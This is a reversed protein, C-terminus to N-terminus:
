GGDARAGADPKVCVDPVCAIGRTDQVCHVGAGCAEGPTTCPKTCFIADPPANVDATCVTNPCDTTTKCSGGVGQDNNPTGPPVCNVPPSAGDQAGSDSAPPPPPTVAAAPSACDQNAPDTAAPCVASVEAPVLKGLKAPAVDFSLGVGLADCLSSPDVVGDVRLDAFGCFYAKVRPFIANDTCVANGGVQSNTFAGIQRFMEGLALKGAIQVKTFPQGSAPVPALLVFSEFAFATQGLRWIPGTGDPKRTFRAVLTGENVYAGDDAVLGIVNGNADSAATRTDLPVAYEGTDWRPKATPPTTVAAPLFLEVKVQDDVTIGSYGTIRVVFSPPGGGTDIGANIQSSSLFTGGFLASQADILRGIGNDIGDDGDTGDAFPPWSPTKCSPGQSRNTCLGDQDLGLSKFGGDEGFHIARVAFVIPVNSGGYNGPPPPAPAARHNCTVREVTFEAGLIRECGATVLVLLAACATATLARRM